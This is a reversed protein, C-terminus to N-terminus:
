HIVALDNMQCMRSRYALWKEHYRRLAPNDQPEYVRQLAQPLRERGLARNCLHLCGYLRAQEFGKPLRVEIGLLDAVAQPTISRM